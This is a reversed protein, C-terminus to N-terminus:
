YEGITHREVELSNVTYSITSGSSKFKSQIITSPNANKGLYIDYSIPYDYDPEECSWQLVVPISQVESGNTPSVLKPERPPRNIVPCASILIIIVLAILIIMTRKIRM